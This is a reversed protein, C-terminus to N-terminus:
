RTAQPWLTSNTFSMKMDQKYLHSLVTEIGFITNDGPLMVALPFVYSVCHVHEGKFLMKKRQGKWECSNCTNPLGEKNAMEVKIGVDTICSYYDLTIFATCTYPM